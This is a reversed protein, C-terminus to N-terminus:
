LRPFLTDDELWSEETHPLPVAQCPCTEGLSEVYVRMKKIYSVSSVHHLHTKKEKKIRSNDHREGGDFMSSTSTYSQQSTHKTRVLFPCLGKELIIKKGKWTKGALM